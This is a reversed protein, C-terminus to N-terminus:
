LDAEKGRYGTKRVPQRNQGKREDVLDQKRALRSLVSERRDTNRTAPKAQRPATVHGSSDARSQSQGPHYAEKKRASDKEALRDRPTTKPVDGRASSEKWESYREDQKRLDEYESRANRFATEFDSVTDYGVRKPLFQIQERTNKLRTKEAALKNEIKGRERFHFINDPIAGLQKKLSDISRSIAYAKRNLTDLQDHINKLYLYEAQARQLAAPDVPEPAPPAPVPSRAPAQPMPLTLTSAPVTKNEPEKNLAHEANDAAKRINKERRKQLKMLISLYQKLIDTAKQLLASFLGPQHGNDRISERAKETVQERKFEVVKEKSVGAILLQDVTCNWERRLENDAEIEKAKPNNKGIKKTPLYPGSKDFVKVRDHEEQLHRNILETYLDKIEQLFEREKFRDKRESFYRMEYPLGKQLIRCGPRVNGNEDLIQKKTRVHRGEEDFFMNRSAVKVEPKELLERESFVLHIHYNTKTRNHHLASTCQMGYRDQFAKTFEELLQQPDEQCLQEPLAIVLERGEICKGKSQHSRWFDFQSQKSLLEWFEPKASSWTAYLHEQRRPNTIYDVRGRVDPLKTMQIFSHRQM